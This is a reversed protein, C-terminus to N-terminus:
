SNKRYQILFDPLFYFLMALESSPDVAVNQACHQGTYRLLRQFNGQKVAFDGDPFAKM